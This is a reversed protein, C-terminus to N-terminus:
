SKKIGYFLTTSLFEPLKETEDFSLSIKDKGSKKIFDFLASYKM